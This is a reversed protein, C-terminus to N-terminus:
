LLGRVRRASTRQSLWLMSAGLLFLVLSGPEPVETVPGPDSSPIPAVWQETRVGDAVAAFIADSNVGSLVADPVGDNALINSLGGLLTAYDLRFASYDADFAEAAALQTSAAQADFALLAGQYREYSVLSGYAAEFMGLGAGTMANAYANGENSLGYDISTSTNTYQVVQQYNADPPDLILQQLSHNAFSFIAGTVSMLGGIVATGAAAGSLLASSVILGLGVTVGTIVGGVPSRASIQDILAAIVADTISTPFNLIRTMADFVITENQKGEVWEQSKGPFAYHQACSGVHVDDIKIERTFAEALVVRGDYTTFYPAPGEQPGLAGGGIGEPVCGDVIQVRLEIAFASSLVLTGLLGISWRLSRAFFEPSAKM